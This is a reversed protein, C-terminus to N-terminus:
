RLIVDGEFDLVFELQTQGSGKKGGEDHLANM